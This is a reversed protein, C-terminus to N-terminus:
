RNQMAAAASAPHASRYAEIVEDITADSTFGLSRAHAASFRGPWSNVIRQVAPDPEIRVRDAVADGALRRLAALMDAVSVSLGPMNIVRRSGLAATPLAEGHLLNRIAQDPSMLWLVTDPSVPCVAEVGALPERIIGSAFSSAARNPRGPRVVVTPMRLSRGDVFGHRSYDSVLLDAIAKQTGYSSQPEWVQTDPVVEPLVGGFVAVSSTTVLKAGRAVARIRELLGRTADLNVRMGLDFEEEAQGSVVAALHFVVDTTHDVLQAVAAPDALDGAVAVVRRDAEKIATTDFALIREIPDSRGDSATLSSQRLLAAVLRRGLFGAAGTIAVRM